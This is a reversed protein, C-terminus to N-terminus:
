RAEMYELFKEKAEDPDLGKKINDLYYLVQEDKPSGYSKPNNDRFWEMFDVFEQFNSKNVFDYGNEELSKLSKKRQAKLGTITSLGSKVFSWLDAAAAAIESKSGLDALKPFRGVNHKYTLSTSFESAGMRKLRKQAIDRMRAYEKRLEKESMGYYFQEMQRRAELKTRRSRM